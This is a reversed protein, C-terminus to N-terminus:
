LASALLLVKCAVLSQAAHGSVLASLLSLVSFALVPAWLPWAQARRAEADRLGWLWLLTLLALATESLTISFGLGLVFAGLLARRLTASTL